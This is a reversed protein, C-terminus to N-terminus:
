HCSTGCLMAHWVVLLVEKVNVLGLWALTPSMPLPGKGTADFSLLCWLAVQVPILQRRARCGPCVATIQAHCAGLVMCGYHYVAPAGNTMNTVELFCTRLWVVVAHVDGLDGCHCLVLGFM